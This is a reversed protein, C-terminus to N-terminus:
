DRGMGMAVTRIFAFTDSHRLHGARRSEHRGSGCRAIAKVVAHHLMSTFARSM